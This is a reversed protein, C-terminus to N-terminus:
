LTGLWSWLDSWSDFLVTSVGAPGGELHPAPNGGDCPRVTLVVAPQRQDPPLRAQNRARQHLSWWLPFEDSGLGCGVFLLPSMMFVDLWSLADFPRRYVARSTPRGRLTWPGRARRHELWADRQRRHWGRRPVPDAFLTRDRRGARAFDREASKFRQWALDLGEISRGYRAVGLLITAPAGTRGHLQWLRSFAPDRLHWRQYLQRLAGFSTQRGPRQGRPSSPKFLLAELSARVIRDDFNLTMLDRFGASLLQRYLPPAEGRAAEWILDSQDDLADAVLGALEEERESAQLLEQRQLLGEWRATMSRPPGDPWSIGEDGEIDRLLQDWNVAQSGVEWAAQLNVGSGLVPVMIRDGDDFRLDLLEELHPLAAEASHFGPEIM